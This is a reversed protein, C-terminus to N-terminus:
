CLNRAPVSRVRWRRPLSAGSTSWTRPVLGQSGTLSFSPSRFTPILIVGPRSEAISLRISTSTSNTRRSGCSRREGALRRPRHRSRAYLSLVQLHQGARFSQAYRAHGLGPGERVPTGDGAVYRPHESARSRGRRSIRPDPNLIPPWLHGMEGRRGDRLDYLWRPSRRNRFHSVLEMRAGDLDCKDVRSAVRRLEASSGDFELLFARDTFQEISRPLESM